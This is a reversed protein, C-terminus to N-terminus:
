RPLLDPYSRAAPARAVESAVFEEGVAQEPELQLRGHGSDGGPVAGGHGGVVEEGNGAGEPRSGVQRRLLPKPQIWVHRARFLIKLFSRALCGAQLVGCRGPLGDQPGM